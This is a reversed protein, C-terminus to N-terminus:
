EGNGFLNMQPNKLDEYRGLNYEFASVEKFYKNRAVQFQNKIIEAYNGSGRMRHGFDSDNLKGRHMEAIQSLIKKARDPYAKELWDSFIKAIDGNLRVVIHRIDRAGSEAALKVLDMINHDNLGPVIPAAMVIVPIGADSLTKVAQMRKQISATRPELFKRIEDDVTNISFAVSVLNHKNLDKLIDLDRLILSNKTIIGVPHGTSRFVELLKRTIKFKAEAPQYCDTNGSLMIPHAKWNKSKLKKHLLEPAEHKVMIKTEFDLGASYGWYTHTNRAYCYVCGHECGQYPNLSYGYPIDPSDVKNVITKPHVSIYNTKIKFDEDQFIDPDENRVEQHFPNATNIQAGRGKIYDRQNYPM